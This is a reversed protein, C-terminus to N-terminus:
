ATIADALEACTLTARHDLRASCAVKYLVIPLLLRDEIARGILGDQLRAAEENTLPTKSM